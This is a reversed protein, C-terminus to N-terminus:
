KDYEAFANELSVGSDDHGVGAWDGLMREIV